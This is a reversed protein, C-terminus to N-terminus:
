GKDAQTLCRLITVTLSLNELSRRNPEKRAAVQQQAAMLPALREYCRLFLLGVKERRYFLLKVSTKGSM